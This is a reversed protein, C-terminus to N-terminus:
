EGGNKRIAEILRVDLTGYKRYLLLAVYGLFVLVALGIVIATVVLVQPLPDVAEEAFKSLEEMGPKLINTFTVGPFVPPKIFGSRVGIVVALLNGTDSLISLMILKKVINPRAAMGYITLVIIVIISTYIYGWIITSVNIM